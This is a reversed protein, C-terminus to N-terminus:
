ALSWWPTGEGGGGYGEGGVEFSSLSYMSAKSFSSMSSRLLSSSSSSTSGRGQPRSYAARRPEKSDACMSDVMLATRTMTRSCVLAAMALRM